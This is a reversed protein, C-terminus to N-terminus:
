ADEPDTEHKPRNDDVVPREFNSMDVMRHADLGQDENMRTYYDDTGEPKGMKGRSTNGAYPTGCEPCVIVSDGEKISDLCFPCIKGILDEM